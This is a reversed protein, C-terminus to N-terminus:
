VGLKVRMAALDICARAAIEHRRHELELMWATNRKASEVRHAKMLDDTSTPM